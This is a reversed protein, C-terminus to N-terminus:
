DGIRKEKTPNDLWKAIDEALADTCRELVSCSGKFGAGFGGGSHRKGGFEAIVKGDELLSGRIKVEKHHGTFANGGSVADVLNVKLIRGKGAEVAKDDVVLKHNRKAAEEVLVKIEREPLNCGLIGKDIMMEDSFAAKSSIYITDDKAAQKPDADAGYALTATMTLGFLLTNGLHHLKNKLM